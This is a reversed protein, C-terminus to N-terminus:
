GLAFEVTWFLGLEEATVHRGARLAADVESFSDDRIVEELTSFRENM